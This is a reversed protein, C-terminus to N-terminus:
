KTVQASKAVVARAAAYQSLVKRTRVADGAQGLRLLEQVAALEVWSFVPAIRPDEPRGALHKLLRTGDEVTTAHSHARVAADVRAYLRDCERLSWLTGAGYILMCLGAAAAAKTPLHQLSFAWRKLEAGVSADRRTAGQPQRVAALIPACLETIEPRPTAPPPAAPRRQLREAFDASACQRAAEEQSNYFTAMLKLDQSSLEQPEQEMAAVREAVAGLADAARREQPDLALALRLELLCEPPPLEGAMGALRWLYLGRLGRLEAEAELCPGSAPAAQGLRGVAAALAPLQAFAGSFDSLLQQRFQQAAPSVRRSEQYLALVYSTVQVPRQRILYRVAELLPAADALTAGAQGLFAACLDILAVPLEDVEKRWYGLLALLIPAPLTGEEGQPGVAHEPAPLLEGGSESHRGLALLCLGLYPLLRRATRVTPKFQVLQGLHLQARAGDLLAKEMLHALIWKMRLLPLLEEEIDQLVETLDDAGVPVGLAQTRASLYARVAGDQAATRWASEMRAWPDSLPYKGSREEREVALLEARARWLSRPMPRAPDCLLVWALCRRPPKLAWSSFHGPEAAPDSFPPAGGSGTAATLAQARGTQLPAEYLLRLSPFFFSLEGSQRWFGEAEQM